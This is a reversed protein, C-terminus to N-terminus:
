LKETRPTNLGSPPMEKTNNRQSFGSELWVYGLVIVSAVFVEVAMRYGRQGSCRCLSGSGCCNLVCIVSFRVSGIETEKGRQGGALFAPYM